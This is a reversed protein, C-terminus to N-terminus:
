ENPEVEPNVSQPLPLVQYQDKSYNYWEKDEDESSDTLKEAVGKEVLWDWIPKSGRSLYDRSHLSLGQQSVMKIIEKYVARGYGRKRSSDDLYIDIQAWKKNKSKGLDLEVVGIPIQKDNLVECHINIPTDQRSIIEIKPLVADPDLLRDYYEEVNETPEQELDRRAQEKGAKLEAYINRKDHLPQSAIPVHTEGM